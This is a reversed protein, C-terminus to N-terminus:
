AARPRGIITTISAFEARCYDLDFTVDYVQNVLTLPQWHAMQAVSAVLDRSTLNTGRSTSTCRKLASRNSNGPMSIDSGHCVATVASHRFQSTNTSLILAPRSVLSTSASFRMSTKFRSIGKTSQPAPRGGDTVLHRHIARTCAHAAARRQRCLPVGFIM